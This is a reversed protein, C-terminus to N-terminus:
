QEVDNARRNWREVATEETEEWGICISCQQCVVGYRKFREMGFFAERIKPMSGCFPCPRLNTDAM